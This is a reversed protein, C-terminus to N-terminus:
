LAMSKWPPVAPQFFVSTIELSHMEATWKDALFISQSCIAPRFIRKSDLSKATLIERQEEHQVESEKGLIYTSQGLTATAFLSFDFITM